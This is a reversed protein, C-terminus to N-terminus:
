ATQGVLIIGSIAACVSVLVYVPFHVRAANVGMRASAVSNGGVAYVYHGFRTRHLVFGLLLAVLLFLIAPNPIGFLRGLGLRPSHIPSASVRPPTPPSM